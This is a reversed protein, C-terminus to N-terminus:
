WGKERRINDVEEDCLGAFFLFERETLVLLRGGGTLYYLAVRRDNTEFRKVSFQGRWDTYKEAPIERTPTAM